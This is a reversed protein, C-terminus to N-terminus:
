LRLWERRGVAERSVSARHGVAVEGEEVAQPDLHPQWYKCCVCVSRDLGGKEGDVDVREATPLALEDGFSLVLLRRRSVQGLLNSLEQLLLDDVLRALILLESSQPPIPAIRALIQGAIEADGLAPFNGARDQFCPGMPFM